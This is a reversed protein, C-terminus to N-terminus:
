HWAHLTCPFRPLSNSTDLLAEYADDAYKQASAWHLDREPLIDGEGGLGQQAWLYALSLRNQFSARSYRRVLDSRAKNDIERARKPDAKVDEESWVKAREAKGLRSEYVQSLTRTVQIVHRLDDGGNYLADGYDGSANIDDTKPNLNYVFTKMADAADVNGAFRFLLAALELILRPRKQLVMKVSALNIESEEPWCYSPDSVFTGGRISALGSRPSDSSWM